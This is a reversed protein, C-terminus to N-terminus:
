ALTTLRARNPLQRQSSSYYFAVGILTMDDEIGDNQLNLKAWFFDRQRLNVYRINLTEGEDDESMMGVEQTGWEDNGFGSLTPDTSIRYRPFSGLGKEGMYLAQVTTNNGFLSGFILVVKDYKKFQDAVGADYQKTTLSLTIKNGSGSSVSYDTKGKFMEVIVGGKDAVESAGFYLAEVKTTPHIGKFMIAPHMGTWHSWTNYREDYVLISNNGSDQSGTSIGFLSLNRFYESCVRPLNSPTVQSTVSDAKLSM